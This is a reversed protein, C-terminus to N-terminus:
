HLSPFYLSDLGEQSLGYSPHPARLQTRQTYEFQYKILARRRKYYIHVWLLALIVDIAAGGLRYMSMATIINIAALVFWYGAVIKASVIEQHSRRIHRRAVALPDSENTKDAHWFVLWERHFRTRQYRKWWRHMILSLKEVGGTSMIGILAVSFYLLFLVILGLVILRIGDRM